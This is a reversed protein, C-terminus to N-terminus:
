NQYHHKIFYKLSKIIFKAKDLNLHMRNDDVGLWLCPETAISSEQISCKEMNRDEFEIYQFGRNTKKINKM